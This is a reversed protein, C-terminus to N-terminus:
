CPWGRGASRRTPPVARCAARGTARCIATAAILANRRRPPPPRDPSRPDRRPLALSAARRPPPRLAAMFYPRGPSPGFPWDPRYHGPLYAWPTMTGFLAMGQPGQFGPRVAAPKGSARRSAVSRRIFPGAGEVQAPPRVNLADRSAMNNSTVALPWGRVTDVVRCRRHALVQQRCLRVM